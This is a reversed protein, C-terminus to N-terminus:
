VPIGGSYDLYYSPSLGEWSYFNSAARPILDNYKALEPYNKIDNFTIYCWFDYTWGGWAGMNRYFSTYAVFKSNDKWQQGPLNDRFGEIM